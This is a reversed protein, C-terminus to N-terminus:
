FGGKSELSWIINADLKVGSTKWQKLVFVLLRLRIQSLHRRIPQIEPARDIPLDLLEHICVVGTAWRVIMAVSRHPKISAATRPYFDNRVNKKKKRNIQTGFWRDSLLPEFLTNWLDISEKFIRSTKRKRRRACILDLHLLEMGVISQSARVVRHIHLEWVLRNCIKDPYICLHKQLLM